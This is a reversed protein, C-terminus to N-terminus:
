ILIQHKDQAETAVATIIRLINRINDMIGTLDQVRMDKLFDTIPVTHKEVFAAPSCQLNRNAVYGANIIWAIRGFM